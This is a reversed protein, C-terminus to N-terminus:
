KEIKEGGKLNIYYDFLAKADDYGKVILSCMGQETLVRQWELQEPSPKGGSKRKMEIYLSHYIGRAVPIVLDPVGNRLGEKHLKNVAKAVEEPRAGRVYFGNPVSFIPYGLWEVYQVFQQQATTELPNIFSNPKRM